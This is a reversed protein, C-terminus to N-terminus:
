EDGYLEMAEHFQLYTQLTHSPDMWQDGGEITENTTRRISLLCRPAGGVVVSELLRDGRMQNAFHESLECEEQKAKAVAARKEAPSDFMWIKIMWIVICVPIASIVIWTPIWMILIQVYPRLSALSSPKHIPPVAALVSPARCLGESESLSRSARNADTSSVAYNIQKRSLV